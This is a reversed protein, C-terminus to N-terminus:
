RLSSPSRSTGDLGNPSQEIREQLWNKKVQVPMPTAAPGNAALREVHKAKEKEISAMRSELGGVGDSLKQREALLWVCLGILATFVIRM